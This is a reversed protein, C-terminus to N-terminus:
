LLALIASLSLAVRGTHAPRAGSRGRPTPHPQEPARAPPDAARDAPRRRSPRHPRHPSATCRRVHHHAGGNDSKRMGHAPAAPCPFIGTVVGHALFAIISRRLERIPPLAM